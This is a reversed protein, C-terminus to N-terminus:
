RYARVFPWGCFERESDGHVSGTRTSAQTAQYAFDVCGHEAYIGFGDPLSPDCVADLGGLDSFLFLDFIELHRRSDFVVPM